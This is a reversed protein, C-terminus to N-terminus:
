KLNLTWYPGLKHIGYSTVNAVMAARHGPSGQWGQFVHQANAYNWGANQFFGPNVHHGMGRSTQATNNQAAWSSLNPDYSLSRLGMSNRFRNIIGQFGYPDGTYVQIIVWKGQREPSGTLVQQATCSVVTGDRRRINASQLVSFTEKVSTAETVETTTTSTPDAPDASLLSVILLAFM